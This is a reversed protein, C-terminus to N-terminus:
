GWVHLRLYSHYLRLMWSGFGSVEKTHIDHASNWVQGCLVLWLWFISALRYLAGQKFRLVQTQDTAGSMFLVRTPMHKCFLHQSPLPLSGRPKGALRALNILELNSSLDQRLFLLSLSQPLGLFLRQGGYVYVCVCLFISTNGERLGTRDGSHLSLWTDQFELRLCKESSLDM